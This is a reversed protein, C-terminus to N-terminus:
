AASSTSQNLHTAHQSCVYSHLRRSLGFGSRNFKIVGGDDLQSPSHRPHYSAGGRSPSPPTTTDTYFGIAIPQLRDAQDYKPTM